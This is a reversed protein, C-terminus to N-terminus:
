PLRTLVFMNRIWRMPGLATFGTVFSAPLSALCATDHNVAQARPSTIITIGPHLGLIPLKTYMIISAPHIWSCVTPGLISTTHSPRKQLTEKKFATHPLTWSFLRPVRYPRTSFVRYATPGLQFSATRPLAFSFLRPVRYRPLGLV